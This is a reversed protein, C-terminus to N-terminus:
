LDMYQTKIILNDILKVTDINCPYNENKDYIKYVLINLSRLLYIFKSSIICKFNRTEGNRSFYITSINYFLCNKWMKDIGNINFIM